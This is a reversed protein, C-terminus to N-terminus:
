GGGEGWGGGRCSMHTLTTQIDLSVTKKFREFSAESKYETQRERKVIKYNKFTKETKESNRFM